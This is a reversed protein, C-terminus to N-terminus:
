ELDGPLNIKNIHEAIKRDPKLLDRDTLEEIRTWAYEVPSPFSAAPDVPRCFFAHLTLPFDNDDHEVSLCHGDVRIELDLEEKIERVLCSELSEGPERKGGPFEWRGGHRAGPPRRTILVTDRQFILAATVDLRPRDHPPINM